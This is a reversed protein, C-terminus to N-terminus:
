LFRKKSNITKIIWLKMKYWKNKNQTKRYLNKAKNNIKYSVSKNNNSIIRNLDIKKSNTIKNNM